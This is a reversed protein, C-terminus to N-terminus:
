CRRIQVDLKLHVNHVIRSLFSIIHMFDFFFFDSESNVAAWVGDPGCVLIDPGVLQNDDCCCERRCVSGAVTGTCTTVTQLSSPPAGCEV